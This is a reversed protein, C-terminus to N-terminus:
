EKQWKSNIVTSIIIKQFLPLYTNFATQIEAQNIGGALFGIIIMKEKYPILYQLSRVHMTINAYEALMSSELWIAKEGDIRTLGGRIFKSNNYLLDKFDAESKFDDATITKVIEDTMGPVNKIVISSSIYNSEKPPANFTQVVNPRKGEKREWTEPYSISLDIGKAKHHERTSFQKLPIKCLEQSQTSIISGQPILSNKVPMHNSNSKVIEHAMKLAQKQTYALDDEQSYHNNVYCVLIKEKVYIMSLSVAMFINLKEGEAAIDCQVMISATFINDNEYDIGLPIFKSIKIDVKSDPSSLTRSAQKEFDKTSKSVLEPMMDFQKRMSDKLINFDQQNVSYNITKQPTAVIIYRNFDPEKGTMILLADKKEVYGCVILLDKPMLQTLQKLVEANIANANVFGEQLPIVITKDGLKFEGATSHIVFALLLLLVYFSKNIM